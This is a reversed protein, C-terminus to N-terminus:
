SSIEQLSGIRPRLYAVKYIITDPFLDFVLPEYQFYYEAVIITEDDRLTIEAPADVSEGESGIKSVESLTGVGRRQWFISSATDSNQSIASVIMRSDEVELPAMVQAVALFIDDMLAESMEEDRTVLDGVANTAHQVKMHMMLLSGTEVAGILITTFIPLTLATEVLIAGRTDRRLRGLINKFLSM